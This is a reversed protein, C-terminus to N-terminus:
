PPGMSMGKKANARPAPMSSPDNNLAPSGPIKSPTNVVKTPPIKLINDSLAAPPLPMAPAAAELVAPFATAVGCARARASGEILANAALAVGKTAAEVIVVAINVGRSVHITLCFFPM